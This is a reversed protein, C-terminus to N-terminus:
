QRILVLGFVGLSLALGYIFVDYTIRLARARQNMVTRGRYLQEIMAKQLTQGDLALQSMAEQYEALSVEADFMFVKAAEARPVGRIQPPRGLRMSYVAVFLVVLNVGLLVLTPALLYRQTEIRRLLLGVVASIMLANVHIM